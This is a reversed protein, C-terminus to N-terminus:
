LLPDRTPHSKHQDLIAQLRQTVIEPENCKRKRKNTRKRKQRRKQEALSKGQNNDEFVTKCNTLIEQVNTYKESLSQIKRRMEKYIEQKSSVKANRIQLSTNSLHVYYSIYMFLARRDGAPIKGPVTDLNIDDKGFPSGWKKNMENIEATNVIHPLFQSSQQRHIFKSFLEQIL